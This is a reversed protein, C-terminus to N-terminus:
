RAYVDLAYPGTSTPLPECATDATSAGTQVPVQGRGLSQLLRVHKGRLSLSQCLTLEHFWRTTKSPENSNRTPTADRSAECQWCPCCCRMVSCEGPMLSHTPSKRFITLQGSSRRTSGSTLLIIYRSENMILPTPKWGAQPGVYMRKLHRCVPETEKADGAIDEAERFLHARCRQFSSSFVACALWDECVATGALDGGCKPCCECSIEIIEDPKSVTRWGQDYGDQGSPTGGDVRVKDDYSPPPKNIALQRNSSSTHRNEYKCLYAELEKIQEDKQQLQEQLRKNEQEFKEVRQKVQLPRSLLEDKIINNMYGVKGARVATDGLSAGRCLGDKLAAYPRQQWYM